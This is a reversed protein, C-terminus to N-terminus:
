PLGALATPTPCHAAIKLSLTLYETKGLAGSLERGTTILSYGPALYPAAVNLIEEQLRVFSSVRVTRQKLEDLSRYQLKRIGTLGIKM